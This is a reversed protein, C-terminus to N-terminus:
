DAPLDRRHKSLMEALLLTARRVRTEATKAPVGTLEGIEAVSMGEMRFLVFAERPEDPLSRLAEEVKKSLLAVADRRAVERDAPPASTRPDPAGVREDLEARRTRKERENLYLRFATRKLWGAVSGRGEFQAQKRWVTLFTEQLLDEADAANRTLRCLFRFVAERHDRWLGDFGNEHVAVCSAAAGGAQANTPGGTRANTAGNPAEHTPENRRENARENM